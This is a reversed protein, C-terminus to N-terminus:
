VYTPREYQVKRSFDELFQFYEQDRNLSVFKQSAISGNCRERVSHFIIEGQPVLM